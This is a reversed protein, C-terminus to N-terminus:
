CGPKGYFHNYESVNAALSEIITNKDEKRM